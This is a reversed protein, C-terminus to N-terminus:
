LSVIKRKQRFLLWTILIGVLFAAGTMWVTMKKSTDLMPNDFLSVSFHISTILWQQQEKILSATWIGHLNFTQGGVIMQDSTAGSAIATDGYFIAPHSVSAQTKFNSVLADKGTLMRNYYARVETIGHSIEADYWAITITPHMYETMGDLDKANIAAELKTLVKGLDVRDQYHSDNPNLSPLDAANAHLIMIPSFILALLIHQFKM